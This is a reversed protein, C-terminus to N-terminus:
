GRRSVALIAGVALLALGLLMRAPTSSGTKPLTAPAAEAAPEPEAAPAAAAAAPAPEPAPAPAAKITKVEEETIKVAAVAEAAPTPARFARLYDGERLGMVDVQKGDKMFYIGSDSTIVFKHIGPDRGKIVDVILTQGVRHLVRGEGVEVTGEPAQATAAVAGCLALGAIWVGVWKARSRM